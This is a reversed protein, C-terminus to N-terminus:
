DCPPCQMIYTTTTHVLLDRHGMTWETSHEQPQEFAYPSPSGKLAAIEESVAERFRDMGLEEILWLLRTKQRDGRSGNDRYFRLIARDCAPYMLNHVRVFCSNEDELIIGFRLVFSSSTTM